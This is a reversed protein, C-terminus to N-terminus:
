ADERMIYRFEARVDEIFTRPLNGYKRYGADLRRPAEGYPRGFEVDRMGCQRRVAVDIAQERECKACIMKPLACRCAHTIM